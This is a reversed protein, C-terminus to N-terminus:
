IGLSQGLVHRLTEETAISGESPFDFPGRGPQVAAPDGGGAWQMLRKLCTGPSM